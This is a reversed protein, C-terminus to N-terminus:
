QMVGAAQFKSRGYEDLARQLMKRKRNLKRLANDARKAKTEWRKILQDAHAIKTKLSAEVTPREKKKEHLLGSLWGADVVHQAIQAELRSHLDHHPRFGPHRVRFITHSVDHILRPWGNDVAYSSPLRSVWTRPVRTFKAAYLQHPAGWKKGGYAKYLAKAAREAEKKSIAPLPYPLIDRVTRYRPDDFM